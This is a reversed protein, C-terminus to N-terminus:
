LEDRVYVDTAFWYENQCSFEVLGLASRINEALRAMHGHGIEYGEWQAQKNIADYIRQEVENQRDPM